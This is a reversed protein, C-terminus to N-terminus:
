DQDKLENNMPEKCWSNGSIDYDIYSGFSMGEMITNDIKHGSNTATNDQITITMKDTESTGAVDGFKVVNSGINDFTNGTIVIKGHNFPASAGGNDQIAIANHGDYTNNKFECNKVTVGKVKFTYVGQYCNTFTCGEVTLNSLSSTGENYFRLAQGNTSETGNTTFTCGTFKVKDITTEASSSAINCNSTFNLNEFSLNSVKHALNYSNNSDETSDGIVYDKSPSGTKGYVHGSVMELGAINVTAGEAAKITLNKITRVYYRYAHSSKLQALSVPTGSFGAETNYYQTNSGAYATARGLELKGYDGAALVLTAGDLSGYAGDLYDSINEATVSWVAPITTIIVDFAKNSEDLTGIYRGVIEGVNYETAAFSGAPVSRDNTVTTNKVSNNTVNWGTTTSYQTGNAHGLLGGIDRSGTIVCDEVTCNTASCSQEASLQGAIAGAKDGDDNNAPSATITSNKVNCKDIHTCLGQGVIAGVRGLGTVTANDITLNKIYIGTTKGFLGLDKKDATTIKFNSITHNQGDFVSGDNVTWNIPTWEAGNLDIDKMLKVTAVKGDVKKIESAHKQFWKLDLANYLEYVNEEADTTKANGQVAEVKYSITCTKDQYKNGKEETMEITVPVTDLDAGVALTEWTGVTTRGEYSQEDITVTLGEFLGDDEECMIVTRYKVDVNSKNEVNISFSIKDMPVMHNITLTQAKEDLTASGGWFGDKTDYSDTTSNYYKHELTLGDSITAVVDVKGSTVAINVKSESTFIALTAGAILSACMIIALIASIIISRKATKTM